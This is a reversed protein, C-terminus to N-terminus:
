ELKYVYILHLYTNRDESNESKDNDMDIKMIINGDQLQEYCIPALRTYEEPSIFTGILQNNIFIHNHPYIGKLPTGRSFPVFSYKGKPLYIPYSVVSDSYIHIDNQPVDTKFNSYNLIRYYNGVGMDVPKIESIVYGKEEFTRVILNRRKLDEIVSKYGFEPYSSGYYLFYNAKEEAVYEYYQEPTISWPVEMYLSDKVYGRYYYYRYANVPTTIYIHASPPVNKNIYNLSPKIELPWLPFKKFNEFTLIYLCGVVILVGMSVHLKKTVFEAILTVGYSMLLIFCPLLYLILRFWFPYIKCASLVLHVFIPLWVLWLIDFQKRRIVTWTAIIFLAALLYSVWSYPTIYLLMTYFIEDLRQKFFNIFDPSTIDTPCFAFAYNAKQDAIAPHNYVFSFYNALFVVGWWILVSLQQKDVKRNKFWYWMMRGGISFLVIFTVNSFLISLCGAIILLKNRRAAIYSNGSISLFVLLLYVSVDVAYPKLESSFFILTVNVSFVFFGILAAIKNKTLDRIVYYFLPLSLISFIFPVARLACETYGFLQGMAKTGWIFFLAAAQIFDLPQALRIYGYKIFNLAFHTEDEWLSRGMLYQYFRLYLGIGLMLIFVSIISYEFLKQKNM